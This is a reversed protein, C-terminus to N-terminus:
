QVDRKKAAGFKGKEGGWTNKMGASIRFLRKRRGETCHGEGGVKRRLGLNM